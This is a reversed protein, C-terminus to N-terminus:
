KIFYKNIIFQWVTPQKTKLTEIEKKLKVIQKELEIITTESLKAAQLAELVSEPSNISSDSLIKVIFTRDAESKALYDSVTNSLYIEDNEPSMSVGVGAFKGLIGKLKKEYDLAQKEYISDSDHIKQLSDKLSKIETLLLQKDKEYVTAQEVLKKNLDNTIQDVQEKRVLLGNQLDVLNDVAVKNSDDNHIDLGKYMLPETSFFVKPRLVGLLKPTNYNRDRVSANTGTPWNQEFDKFTSTTGGGLAIGIHGAVGSQFVCLDGDNPIFTASNPILDFYKYTIDNPKTFAEYAYLHQITAKPYGLCFVWLYALDM